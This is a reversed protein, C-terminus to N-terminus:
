ADKRNFGLSGLRSLRGRISGTTSQPASPIPPTGGVNVFSSGSPSNLSQTEPAPEIGSSVGNLGHRALHALTRKLPTVKPLSGQDSVSERQSSRLSPLSPTISPPSMPQRDHISSITVAPRNTLGSLISGRSDGYLSRPYQSSAKPQYNQTSPSISDIDTLGDMALRQIEENFNKRFFKELTEQFPLM